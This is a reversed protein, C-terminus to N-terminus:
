GGVAAPIVPMASVNGCLSLARPATLTHVPEIFGQIGQKDAFKGTAVSNWLMPSLIPQLTALNGMVGRTILGDLTPLLGGDLLPTIHEWDAADWGILLVKRTSM